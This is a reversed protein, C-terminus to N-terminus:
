VTLTAAVSESVEVAEAVVVTVISEPGDIVLSTQFGADTSRPCLLVSETVTVPPVAGYV